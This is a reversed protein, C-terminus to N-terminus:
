SPLPGEFLRRGGLGKVPDIKLFLCGKPNATKKTIQDKTKQGEYMKHGDVSFQGYLVAMSPVMCITYSSSANRIVTEKM